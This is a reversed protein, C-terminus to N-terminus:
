NPNARPALEARSKSWERDGNFAQKIGIIPSKGISLYKKIAIEMIQILFLYVVRNQYDGTV